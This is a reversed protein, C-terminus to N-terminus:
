QYKHHWGLQSTGPNYMMLSAMTNGSTFEFSMVLGDTISNSSFLSISSSSRFYIIESQAYDFRLDM